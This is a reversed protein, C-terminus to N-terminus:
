PRSATPTSSGSGATAPPSSARPKSTNAELSGALLDVLRRQSETLHLAMSGLWPHTFGPHHTWLSVLALSDISVVTTEELAVADFPHPIRLLLTVDGLADGPRLVELVVRRGEVHRCLGIAGQRVLHVRTPAQGRHVVTAGSPYHRKDLEVGLDALSQEGPLASADRGSGTDSGSWVAAGRPIEAVVMM